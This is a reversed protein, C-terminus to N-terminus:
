RLESVNEHVRKYLIYLKFYKISMAIKRRRRRLIKKTCNRCERAVVTLGSLSLCACLSSMTLTDTKWRVHRIVAAISLQFTRGLLSAKMTCFCSIWTSIDLTDAAASRAFRSHSSAVKGNRKEEMKNYKIESKPRYATRGCQELDRPRAVASYKEINLNVSRIDFRVYVTHIVRSLDNSVKRSKGISVNANERILQECDFIICLLIINNHLRGRPRM